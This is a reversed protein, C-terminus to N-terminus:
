VVVVSASMSIDNNQKQKVVTGFYGHEITFPFLDYPTTSRRRFVHAIPSAVSENGSSKDVATYFYSTGHAAQSDIVYPEGINIERLMSVQGEFIKYVRFVSARADSFTAPLEIKVAKLM